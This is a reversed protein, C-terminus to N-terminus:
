GGIYSMEIKAKKRAEKTAETRIESYHDDRASWIRGIAAEIEADSAGGRLMQRLDFGESAFLCKYVKGDVSLRMRSCDRCFPESVSSIVGIEGTGDKFRWRTAVEGAYNPDAPEIPYVANIKEVIERSPVVDDLRWDNTVGVDMFEIFRVIVDTGKFHEIIDLIHQDNIGRKVVVNIKIQPIGARRAANIGELVKEVPFGVDNLRMFTEPDISDLSVTLRKLGAKALAEAKKSLASGNTTIAVDLPTGDSCKLATLKAVLAELGRRLLPEGGTLRIKHVGNKIFIRALREIEEFSLLETHALFPHDKEFKEKPMCYHCRFNCRDTLSIRLDRLHRVRTDTWYGEDRTIAGVLPVTKAVPKIPIIKIKQAM